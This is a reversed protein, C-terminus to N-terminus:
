KLLNYEPNLIVGFITAVLIWAALIWLYGILVKWGIDKARKKRSESGGSTILLFGMWIFALTALLTSIMVLAKVLNRVVQILDALSCQYNEAKRGCVILGFGQAEAIYPMFFLLALLSFSTVHALVKKM